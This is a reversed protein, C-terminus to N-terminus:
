NTLHYVSVSRSSTAPVYQKNGQQESSQQHMVTTTQYEKCVL